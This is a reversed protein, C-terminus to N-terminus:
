ESDWGECSHDVSNSPFAIAKSNCQSNVGIDQKGVNLWVIEPAVESACENKSETFGLTVIHANDEPIGLDILLMDLVHLTQLFDGATVLIADEHGLIFIYFALPEENKAVSDTARDFALGDCNLGLMNSHALCMDDDGAVLDDVVPVVALFVSTHDTSVDALLLDALLVSEVDFLLGCSFSDIVLVCPSLRLDVTFVRDRGNCCGSISEEDTTNRALDKLKGDRVDLKFASHVESTPRLLEMQVAIAGFVRNDIDVTDEREIIHVILRIASADSGM